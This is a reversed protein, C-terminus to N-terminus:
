SELSRSKQYVHLGSLPTFTMDNPGYTENSNNYVNLGCDTTKDELQQKGSLLRLQGTIENNVATVSLLGCNGANVNIVTTHETLQGSIDRASTSNKTENRSYKWFSHKVILWQRRKYSANTVVVAGVVKTGRM